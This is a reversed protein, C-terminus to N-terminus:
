GTRRVRLAPTKIGNIFSAEDAMSIVVRQHRRRTPLGSTSKVGRVLGEAALARAPPQRMAVGVRQDV